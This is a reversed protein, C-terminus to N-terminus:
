AASSRSLRERVSVARALGVLTLRVTEARVLGLRDLEDLGCAVWRRSRGLRRALAEVSAPLDLQALDLLGALLIAHDHTM